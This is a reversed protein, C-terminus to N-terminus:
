ATAASAATRASRRTPGAASPPARDIFLARAAYTMEWVSPASENGTHEAGESYFESIQRATRKAQGLAIFRRGELPDELLFQAGFSDIRGGTDTVIGADKFSLIEEVAGDVDRVKVV